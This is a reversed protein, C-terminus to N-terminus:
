LHIETMVAWVFPPLRRACSAGRRSANASARRLSPRRHRSTRPIPMTCVACMLAARRANMSHSRSFYLQGGWGGEEARVQVV